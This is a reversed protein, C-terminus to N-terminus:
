RYMMGSNSIKIVLTTGIILMVSISCMIALLVKFTGGMEDLLKVIKEDAIPQCVAAALHYSITLVALKIIPMICIGIIVLVGVIGVANKLINSCGIVTDISDGLIKGVVPILNSVAAKATKATIGDVSSTLTGDLSIISVFLTLVVGLGWVISSKMFKSIKDIQIKDSIKSVISISTSILVLPIIFVEFINSIFNVLFLIIPEIVSVSAVSGTTLLLTMLIPILTQSYGVMNQIANKTMNIIDSFNSMILTVILIYQVYYTITSISKNELSDSISKLISHIVIIIVVSALIKVSDKIEKGLMNLIKKFFTENEIKGAVASTLLDGVDIDEMFEGSFEKSKTIFDGLNLDKMQSEIIDDNTVQAEGTANSIPIYILISIIFIIIIKKM